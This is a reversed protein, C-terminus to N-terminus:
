IIIRLFSKLIRLLIEQDFILFKNLKIYKLLIKFKLIGNFNNKQSFILTCYYLM